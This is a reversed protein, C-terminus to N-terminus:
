RHEFEVDYVCHDCFNELRQGLVTFPNQADDWPVTIEEDTVVDELGRYALKRGDAGASQDTLQAALDRNLAQVEAQDRQRRAQALREALTELERHPASTTILYIREKGITADLRFPHNEPGSGHGHRGVAHRWLGGSGVTLRGGM